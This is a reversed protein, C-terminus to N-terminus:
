FQGVLDDTDATCDRSGIIDRHYLGPASIDDKRRINASTKGNVSSPHRVATREGAPGIPAAFRVMRSSASTIMSAITTGVIRAINANAQHNRSEFVRARRRGSKVEEPRTSSMTQDIGASTTKKRPPMAQIPDWNSSGARGIAERTFGSSIWTTESSQFHNNM